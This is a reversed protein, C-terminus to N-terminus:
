IKQILNDISFFFKMTSYPSFMTQTFLILIYGDEKNVKYYTNGGGEGFYVNNDKEVITGFGWYAGDVLFQLEGIQNKTIEGVSQDSLIRTNKYTGDNFLMLLIKSFDEISGSLGVGGSFYTKSGEVPYNFPMNYPLSPVVDPVFFSKNEKNYLHFPVLRSKYDDNFYFKTSEIELPNFVSEKLYNDLTKGSVKEILYGLVDYNFGYTWKEKPEHLVPLKALENIKEKLTIASTDYGMDIGHQKYLLGLNPYMVPGYVIGSTNALLDRVTVKNQAPHSIYELTEHNVTDLITLDKFSEIYKEVPDDLIILGNDVLQMVAISTILKTLSSYRFIDDIKLAEKTNTNKYGYAKQFALGNEHVIVVNAHPIYNSDCYYQLLSDIDKFEADHKTQAILQSIILMILLALGLIKKM